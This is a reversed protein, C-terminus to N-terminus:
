LKCADGCDDLDLDQLELGEEVEQDIRLALMADEQSDFNLDLYAEYWEQLRQLESLTLEITM